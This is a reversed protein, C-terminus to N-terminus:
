RRPRSTCPLCGTDTLSDSPHIHKVLDHKLMLGLDPIDFEEACKILISEVFKDFDEVEICDAITKVERIIDCPNKSKLKSISNMVFDMQRKEIILSVVSLGLTINARGIQDMVWTTLKSGKIDSPPNLVGAIEEPTSM